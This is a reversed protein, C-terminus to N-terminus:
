HKELEEKAVNVEQEYREAASHLGDIAKDYLDSFDKPSGPLNITSFPEKRKEELQETAKDIWDNLGGVVSNLEKTKDKHHAYCEM